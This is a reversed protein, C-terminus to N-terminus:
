LPSLRVQAGSLSAIEVEGKKALPNGVTKGVSMGDPKGVPPPVPRKQTVGLPELGIQM